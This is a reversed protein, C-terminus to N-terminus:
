VKRSRSALVVGTVVGAAALGWGALSRRRHRYLRRRKPGRKLQPIGHDRMRYQLTRVSVRLIRAAQRIDGRSERLAALIEDRELAM